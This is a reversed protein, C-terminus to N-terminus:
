LQVCMEQVVVWRGYRGGSHLRWGGGVQMERSADYTNAEELWWGVAQGAGVALCWGGVSRRGMIMWWSGGVQMERSADYAKAEELRLVARQGVQVLGKDPRGPLFPDALRPTVQPASSSPLHCTRM